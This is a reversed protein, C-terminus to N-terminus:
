VIEFKLPLHDSYEFGNIKNNKIFKHEDTKEVVGFYEWNFKNIFYPRILVEDFSYWYMSLGQQDNEGYYTGQITKNDGMIKWMPNFYFYHKKGQVLRYRKKAKLISMTANFGLIGAIGYSYPQLNFDGLVISKFENEHFVDEETKRFLDSVNQAWHNRASEETFLGSLL